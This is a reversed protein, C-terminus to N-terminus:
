DRRHQTHTRRIIEAADKARESWALLARELKAATEASLGKEGTAIRALLSPDIGAAIALARHSCPAIELARRIATPISERM